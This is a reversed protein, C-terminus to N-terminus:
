YYGHQDCHVVWIIRQIDGEEATTGEMKVSGTAETVTTSELETEKFQVASPTGEGLMVQILDPSPKESVSYWSPLVVTLPLITDIVFVWNPTITVLTKM